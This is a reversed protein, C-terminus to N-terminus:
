CKKIYQELYQIVRTADAANSSSFLCEKHQTTRNVLLVDLYSGGGDGVEAGGSPGGVEFELCCGSISISKTWSVLLYNKIYIIQKKEDVLLWTRYIMLSSLFIFIGLFIVVGTWRSDGEIFYALILWPVGAFVFLITNLVYAKVSPHEGLVWKENNM